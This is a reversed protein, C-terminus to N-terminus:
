LGKARLLSRAGTWCSLIRKSLLRLLAPATSEVLSPTAKWAVQQTSRTELSSPHSSHSHPSLLPLFFCVRLCSVLCYRPMLSGVVGAVTPGSHIGIRIQLVSGDVPNKVLAAIAAKVVIAFAAVACAQEVGNDTQQGTKVGGACMYADGITEVKYLDFIETCYDMVTYLNNLMTMVEIESVQRSIDTYGVVDSFFITVHELKKNEPKAGTRIAEVIEPPLIQYVLALDIKHNFKETELEESIAVQDLLNKNLAEIALFNEQGRNYLIYSITLLGLFSFILILHPSTDDGSTTTFPLTALTTILLGVSSLAITLFNPIVEGTLQFVPAIFYFGHNEGQEMCLSLFPTTQLRNCTGVFSSLIVKYMLIPIALQYVITSLTEVKNYLYLFPNEVSSFDGRNQSGMANIHHITRHLVCVYCLSIGFVIAVIAIFICAFVEFISSCTLAFEQDHHCRIVHALAKTLLILFYGDFLLIYFYFKYSHIDGNRDFHLEKYM